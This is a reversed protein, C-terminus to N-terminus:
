LEKELFGIFKLFLIIFYIVGYVWMIYISIFVEAMEMKGWKKM